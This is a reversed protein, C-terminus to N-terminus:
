EVKIGSRTLTYLAMLERQDANEYEKRSALFSLGRSIGPAVFQPRLCVVGVMTTMGCIARFQQWSFLCKRIPLVPRLNPGKARSLDPGSCLSHPLSQAEELTAPGPPAVYLILKGRQWM